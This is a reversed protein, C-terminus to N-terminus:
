NVWQLNSSLSVKELSGEEQNWTPNDEALLHMQLLKCSSLSYWSASVRSRSGGRNRSCKLNHIHDSKGPIATPYIGTGRGYNKTGVPFTHATWKSIHTTDSIAKNGLSRIVAPSAARKILWNWPTTSLTIGPLQILLWTPLCGGLKTLM